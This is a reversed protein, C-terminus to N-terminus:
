IIANIFSKIRAEDENEKDGKYYIEIFTISQLEENFCYIVRLETSLLTKCRMRSKLIFHPNKDTLINCHRSGNGKPFTELVESFIEFDKDISLYKKKLRKFDKSFDDSEQFIM